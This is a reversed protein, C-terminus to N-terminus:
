ASRVMPYHANLQRRSAVLPRPKIAPMRRSAVTGIRISNTEAKQVSATPNACAWCSRIDCQAQQTRAKTAPLHDHITPRPTPRVCRIRLDGCGALPPDVARGCPGAPSPGCRRLPGPCPARLALPWSQGSTFNETRLAAGGGYGASQLRLAQRGHANNCQAVAQADLAPDIKQTVIDRYGDSSSLFLYPGYRLVAATNRGREDEQLIERKYPDRPM